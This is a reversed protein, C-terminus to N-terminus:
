SMAVGLYTPDSFLQVYRGRKGFLTVSFWMQQMFMAQGKGTVTPVEVLARTAVSPVGAALVAM